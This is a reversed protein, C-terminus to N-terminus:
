RATAALDKTASDTAFTLSPSEFLRRAASCHACRSAARIWSCTALAFSRPSMSAATLKAAVPFRNNPTMSSVSFNRAHLLSCTARANRLSREVARERWTAETVGVGSVGADAGTAQVTADDPQAM